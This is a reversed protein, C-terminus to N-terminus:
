LLDIPQLQTEGEALHMQLAKYLLLVGLHKKNRMTWAGPCYYDGRKQNTLHQLGLCDIVAAERTFAEAPLINHFVHLCIVGNDSDWIEMIRRLKKSIPKTTEDAPPHHYYTDFHQIAEYLHAYPRSSKGKGVYFIAKLFTLWVEDRKMSMVSAPLNDAIRPDLLLYIFSTKHHGERWNKGPQAFHKQMELELKVYDGINRSLVEMQLNSRLEVSFNPIQNGKQGGATVLEPNKKCHILRKIYLHKTTKTIPGPIEGFATLEARLAETDCDSPVQLATSLSSDPFIAEEDDLANKEVDSGHPLPRFKTEKFKINNEPDRYQYVELWQMVNGDSCIPSRRLFDSENATLYESHSDGAAGVDDDRDDPPLTSLLSDFESVMEEIEEMSTIASHQSRSSFVNERWLRVFSERSSDGSFLKSYEQLNSQTLESVNVKQPTAPFNEKDDMDLHRNASTPTKRRHTIYIYYPSSPDLTPEIGPSKLQRLTLNGPTLFKNQKRKEEERKSRLFSNAVGLVESHNFKIAYTIATMDDEDPLEPDGGKELLLKFIETCGNGAAIQTPTFAGSPTQLNPNGGFEGFILKAAEQGFAKNPMGSVYHVAAYGKADVICNPDARHKRLLVELHSFHAYELTDILCTGLYQNKQSFTDCSQPTSM